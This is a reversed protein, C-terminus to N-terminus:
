ANRRPRLATKLPGPTATDAVWNAVLEAAWTKDRILPGIPAARMPAPIQALAAAVKPGLSPFADSINFIRGISDMSWQDASARRVLRALIREAEGEGLQLLRATLSPLSESSSLLLDLLARAPPTLEDYSALALARDRSLYLFPKLSVESLRPSLRVWQEYFQGNWSPDPPVYTGGESASREVDVLFAARGHENSAVSKALYEFAAPSACREFLQMKTLEAIGVTMGQAKAITERLMLNNLFRKILRPNGSIEQATVLLPALHEAIDIEKSLSNAHRGFSREIVERTM